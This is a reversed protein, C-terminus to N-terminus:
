DNNLEAAAAMQKIIILINNEMGSAERRDYDSTQHINEYEDNSEEESTQHDWDQSLLGSDEDSLSSVEM